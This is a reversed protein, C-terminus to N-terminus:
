PTPDRGLPLRVAFEAGTGPGDSNVQVTGGHLEVMQKVVTLGIGLGGKSRPGASEVQTFLEFIRPLMDTPIGIGNDEFRVVAEGPEITAKIWIRGGAPTYKTANSLLNVFVQLLRDPDGKLRIPAEPLLLQVDHSLPEFQPRVAELSQRLVDGLDLEVLHLNVKGAGVRALDLLDDVLHRLLDMQREIVRLAYAADGQPTAGTRILSVANTIPGLPNRLEHGLTALFADRRRLDLDREAVLNRLTEMQEKWDTRNRLVKCFRVAGGDQELLTLVGSAYFRSGDARRQWRDDEASGHALAVRLEHEPLGRAQDEETFIRAGPQGVIEAATYGFLREAGPSWWLVRGAEDLFMIAYDQASEAWWRMARDLPFHDEAM